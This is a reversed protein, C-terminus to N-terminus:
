EGYPSSIERGCHDCHDVEERYQGTDIAFVHWGDGKFSTLIQYYESRCCDFCLLGGDDTVVAMEYGGPWAYRHRAVYKAIDHGNDFDYTITRGIGNKSIWFDQRTNM